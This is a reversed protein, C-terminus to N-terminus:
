GRYVFGENKRRLLDEIAEKVKDNVYEQIWIAHQVADPHDECHIQREGILITSNVVHLDDKFEYQNEFETM